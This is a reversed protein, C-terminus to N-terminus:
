GWERLSASRRARRAVLEDDPLAALGAVEVIRPPNIFGALNAAAKAHDRAAVAILKLGPIGRDLARAVDLGIAGLGAIAVTLM